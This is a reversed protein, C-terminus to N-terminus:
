GAGLAAEIRAKLEDDNSFVGARYSGLAVIIAGTLTAADLVPNLKLEKTAYAVADALM